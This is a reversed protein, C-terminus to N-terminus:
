VSGTVFMVPDLPFKFKFLFFTYTHAINKDEIEENVTSEYVTDENVSM